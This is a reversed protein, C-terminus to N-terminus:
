STSHTHTYQRCIHIPDTDSIHRIGSNLFFIPNRPVPTTPVSFWVWIRQLLLFCQSGRWDQKIHLGSRQCGGLEPKKYSDSCSGTLENLFMCYPFATRVLSGPHKQQEKRRSPLQNPPWTFILTNPPIESSDALNCGVTATSKPDATTYKSQRKLTWGYVKPGSCIQTSPISFTQEGWAVEGHTLM